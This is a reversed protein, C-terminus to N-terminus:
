EYSVRGTKRQLEQLIMSQELPVTEQVPLRCVAEKWVDLQVLQLEAFVDLILRLKGYNLQQQLQVFLTDVPLPTEPIQKYVAILETRTPTMAAYYANPLPEKRCLTEYAAKAAFYKAQSIGSKRYDKVILSLQARGQYTKCEATVLFDCVSQLPLGVDDPKTRFLLVDLYLSGYRLKLKSHLGQSLPQITELVAHCIAFVPAPNGEGYPELLSLSAINEVTLDQPLLLRDAQLTMVPMEPFQEAAYTRVAHFFADVETTELSFGGAGPHGGYKTLHEQCAHLCQFISFTGFARASGRAITEEITVLMVPKGFQEQLRSAVIGIVGHHWNQGAFLLVREKLCAPNESIQAQIEQLIATEAAKRRQNCQELTRAITRAETMSESLLLSVAMKPSGFRGAANIRPAITFALNTATLSQNQMGTVELLALLGPRETNVLLRLGQQVLFRNEGTLSVVDAVTAIAALEGFQEMAFTMDGGDMAAVLKLALGAGCFQKFPSPCDPRHPDVVADAVPITDYPQHHDTIVLHMGNERIWEAEELATIGNDVTVILSVGQAKLTELATVNMGYGESREPIYYTVDAGLETLYSYLIVTAMVGDCDYDGYVCIKEGVDVAVNICDAAAQMDRILFPDSLADCSFQEAAEAVTRYGRVTLLEACFLSLDSGAQIKQAATTDPKGIQWKKV